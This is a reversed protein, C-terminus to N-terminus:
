GCSDASLTRIAFTKNFSQESRHGGVMLPKGMSTQSCSKPRWIGRNLLYALSTARHESSAGSRRPYSASLVQSLLQGHMKGAHQPDPPRHLFLSRRDPKTFICRDRKETLMVPPTRTGPPVGLRDLLQKHRNTLLYLSATIPVCLLYTFAGTVFLSLSPQGARRRVSSVGSQALPLAPRQRAQRGPRARRHAVSLLRDAARDVAARRARRRPRRHPIAIAGARPAPEGRGGRLSQKCSFTQYAPSPSPTLTPPLALPSIEPTAWAHAACRPDRVARGVRGEGACYSQVLAVLDDVTRLRVTEHVELLRQDEVQFDSERWRRRRGHGPYRWEEIDVLPVELTLREHPFVRTFHVLEDFIDLLRGRKPSM